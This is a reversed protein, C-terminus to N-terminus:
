INKEHGIICMLNSIINNKNTVLNVISIFILLYISLYMMIGSLITLIVFSSDVYRVLWLSGFTIFLSILPEVMLFTSVKNKFNLLYYIICLSLIIPALGLIHNHTSILMAPLSKSYKDQIEFEEDVESGKYNEVIGRPTIQSQQFLYIIGVGVGIAIVMLYIILLNRFSNSFLNNM